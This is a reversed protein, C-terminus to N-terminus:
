LLAEVAREVHIKTTDLLPVGVDADRLLLPLETGGLILAQISHHEVLDRAIALMRDRTEDLFIGRGLENMYKDHIFHQDDDDPVVLTMGAREFVDFFFRAQMTFRTGFLGLKRLGAASAADRTAEVISILPISSRASVEDFVMHPTNAALLGFDAGAGALRQVETVLFDALKPLDNAAVLSLMSQLDVSNIIISPASGDPKKTRYAALLLRYYDITSEPGIGGIIGVTKTTM